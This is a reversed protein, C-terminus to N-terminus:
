KGICFQGFVVDLLDEVDIRGTIRGLADTARRLDEARLELGQGEAALAAEIHAIAAAVGQAHRIRTVVADEAGALREAAFRTLAAELEALGTGSAVSIELRAAAAGEVAASRLDCKTAVSWVDGALGPDAAAPDDVASLWIVLDATAGRDRARRIGEREVVGTVERIGATDVVTVPNGALELHVEILDRTTGAEPAVIAAERRALANLLSSKGANPRGMLVVELGGRLREATESAALQRRMDAALDRAEAWVEQSVSGPVDDEDPFDLEAEILARCRILGARWAEFVARGAGGALRLAQRRQSETEAAILDALGEVETLDLKDNFFARRTFEGAEALRLGGIRGLAELAARVVARGGHLHLEACDEGTFSNPGPFWLVLGRDIDCADVRIAGYSAVRPVPLRGFVTMLATAAAPGSIRIIAVGAPPAGSSLAFITDSHRNGATM